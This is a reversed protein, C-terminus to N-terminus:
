RVILMIATYLYIRTTRDQSRPNFREWVKYDWIGAEWSGEGNGQYHHGPGSTNCFARGYLPMGLVIKEAPIGYSIYDKVAKDASFPTCGPDQQSHFLNAQHGAKQDWSGSFDYAMLNVFDLLGAMEGLRMHGYNQSGAPSAITVLFHPNDPLSRAYADLEARIARLLAILDGAEEHNKPYEWDIDIGDFGRDRLLQVASQAFRARGAETRCPAAFNSSYTWGGISLLVKLNRNRKKLLFLQKTCGYVNTGPEDWKEGPYRMEIDSWSDPISVEGNEANVNAFAYLIHTLKDIPLDAPFHKRGYVAWNVFYAVTRYGPSSSPAQSM